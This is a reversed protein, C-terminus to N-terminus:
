VDGVLLKETEPMSNPASVGQSRTWDIGAEASLNEEPNDDPATTGAALDEKPDRGVTDRRSGYTTEGRTADTSQGAQARSGARPGGTATAGGAAAKARSEAPSDAVGDAEGSNEAGPDKEESAVGGVVPDYTAGSVMKGTSEGPM